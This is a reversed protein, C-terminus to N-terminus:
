RPGGGDHPRSLRADAPVAHAAFANDGHSSESRGPDASTHGTPPGEASRGPPDANVPSGTTGSVVTSGYPVGVRASTPNTSTIMVTADLPGQALMMVANPVTAAAAAATRIASHDSRRLRANILSSRWTAHSRSPSSSALLTCTTGARSAVAGDIM